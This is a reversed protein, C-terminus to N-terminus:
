RASETNFHELYTTYSIISPVIITNCLVTMVTIIYTTMTQKNFFGGSVETLKKEDINEISKLGIGIFLAPTAVIISTGFVLLLV